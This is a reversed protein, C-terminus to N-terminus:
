NTTTHCLSSLITNAIMLDSPITIKINTYAGEVLKVPYGQLEALSTEDTVTLGKDYTYKFGSEMIDRRVVQPTQIEWLSSRDPTSTAMRDHDIVKITNIVPMGVTAAGHERGAKLVRQVMTNDIFPRASDHVLIIDSTSSAAQLGNYVSDQRRAGPMAFRIPMKSNANFIHQYCPECVIILEDIEPINLLIEFSHLAIPMNGLMRYQKPTAIDSSMRSGTGGSLLIASATCPSKM